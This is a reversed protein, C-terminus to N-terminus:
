NEANWFDLSIFKVTETGEMRATVSTNNLYIESVYFGPQGIELVRPAMQQDASESLLRDLEYVMLVQQGGPQRVKVVLQNANVKPASYDVTPITLYKILQGTLSSFIGLRTVSSSSIIIERSPCFVSAVGFGELDNVSTVETGDVKWLSIVGGRKIIYHPHSFGLLFSDEPLSAQNFETVTSGTIELRTDRGVMVQNNDQDFVVRGALSKKNFIEKKTHVNWALVEREGDVAM